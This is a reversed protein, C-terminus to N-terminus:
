PQGQHVARVAAVIEEPEATKLGRGNAGARLATLVFPDVYYATLILVGIPLQETRM